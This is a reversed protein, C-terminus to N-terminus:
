LLNIDKTDELESRLQDSILNPDGVIYRGRGGHPGRYAPEPPDFLDSNGFPIGFKAQPSIERRMGAEPNYEYAAHPDVYIENLLGNVEEKILQKFEEETIQPDGEENVQFHSAISDAEEKILERLRSKAIKM